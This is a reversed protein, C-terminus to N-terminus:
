WQDDSKAKKVYEKYAENIAAKYARTREASDADYLGTPYDVEYDYIDRDDNKAFTVHWDINGFRDRVPRRGSRAAIAWEIAEKREYEDDELKWLERMLDEVSGTDLWHQFKREQDDIQLERARAPVAMVKEPDLDRCESFTIRCKGTTKDISAYRPGYESLAMMMWRDWQGLLKVDETRDVKQVLDILINGWATAFVTECQKINEDKAAQDADIKDCTKQWNEMQMRHRNEHLRLEEHTEKMDVANSLKTGTVFKKLLSFALEQDETIEAEMITKLEYPCIGLREGMRKWNEAIHPMRKAPALPKSQIERHKAIGLAQNAEHLRTLTGPNTANTQSSLPAGKPLMVGKSKSGKIKDKLSIM